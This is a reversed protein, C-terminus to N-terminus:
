CFLLLLSGTQAITTNIQQKGIHSGIQKAKSETYMDKHATTIDKNAAKPLIITTPIAADTLANKQPLKGCSSAINPAPRKQVPNPSTIITATEANEFCNTLNVAKKTLLM